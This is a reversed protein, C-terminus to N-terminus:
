TINQEKNQETKHKSQWEGYMSKAEKMLQNMGNWIFAMCSMPSASQQGNRGGAKAIGFDGM